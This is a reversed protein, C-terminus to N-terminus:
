PASRGNGVPAAAPAGAVAAPPPAGADIWVRLDAVFAAKDVPVPAREGGPHWAWDVLPDESMHRLLDAPSRGGNRARDTLATALERDGLGEWGMALPALGWRPAGPVGNQQNGDQHCASCRMGVEGRGDPGRRVGLLHPQGGDGQRPFEVTTHCNICRPHRLVAAVRRFAADAAGAADTVGAQAGQGAGPSAPRPCGALAVIALAAIASVAIM